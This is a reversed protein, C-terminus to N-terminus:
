DLVRQGRFFSYRGAGLFILALAAFFYLAPLEIKWAGSDKDLAFVEGRHQLAVAIIMNIAMVLAAPRTWIGLLVFVPAVVEGLYVGYAAFAPLNNQNVIEITPGPGSAIKAVGHFLMLGGIAFRLILKGLDDNHLKKLAEM